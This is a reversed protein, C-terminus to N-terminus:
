LLAVVLLAVRVVMLGFVARRPVVTFTVRVPVFRVPADAIVMDPPAALPMVTLSMPTTLEVVTVAVKVMEAVAGGAVLFTLTVADTPVVLVTGNVTVASVGVRVLMEGAEPSRPVVTATVSVPVLRPAAVHVGDSVVVYGLMVKPAKVTFAAPVEAVAVRVMAFEVPRPTFFRLTVVTFPVLLVTANLTVPAVRVMEAGVGANVDDGALVVVFPGAVMVTVLAVAPAFAPGNEKEAAGVIALVAPAPVKEIVPPVQPEVVTSLATAPVLVQVIITSYTGLPVAVEVACTVTAPLPKAFGDCFPPFKLPL